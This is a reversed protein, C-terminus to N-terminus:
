KKGVKGDVDVVSKPKARYWEGDDSFYAFYLKTLDISVEQPM